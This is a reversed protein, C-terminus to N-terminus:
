ATKVKSIELVASGTNRVVFNHSIETGELVPAFNFTTEPFFAVPKEAAQGSAATSDTTAAPAPTGTTDGQAALVGAPLLLLILAMGLLPRSSLRM